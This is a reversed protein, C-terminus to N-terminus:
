YGFLAAGGSMYSTAIVGGAATGEILPSSKKRLITVYARRWEMMEVAQRSFHAFKQGPVAQRATLTFSTDPDNVSLRILVEENLGVSDGEWYFDYGQYPNFHTGFSQDLAHIPAPMVGTNHFRQGETNTWVAESSDMYGTLYARYTDSGKFAPTMNINEYFVSSESGLSLKIGEKDDLYFQAYCSSEDTIENYTISLDIYIRDQDYINSRDKKQCSFFTSNILFFIITYHLIKM